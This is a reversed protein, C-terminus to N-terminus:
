RIMFYPSALVMRVAQKFENKVNNASLKYKASPVSKGASSLLSAIVTLDEKRWTYGTLRLTM